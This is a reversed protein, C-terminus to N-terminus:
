ENGKAVREKMIIDAKEMNWQERTKLLFMNYHVRFHLVGDVIEGQFNSGWVIDEDVKVYELVDYLQELAGACALTGKNEGPLYRIEFQNQQSFRDGLGRKRENGTLLIQFCPTDPNVPQNDYITYEEGYALSLRDAIGSIRKEIM